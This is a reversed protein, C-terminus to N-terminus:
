RYLLSPLKDASSPPNKASIPPISFSAEVQVPALDATALSSGSISTGVPLLVSIILIVRSLCPKLSM